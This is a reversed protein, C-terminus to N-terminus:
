WKQARSDGAEVLGFGGDFGGGDFGGITAVMSSDLGDFGGIPAVM